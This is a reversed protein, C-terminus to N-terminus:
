YKRGRVEWTGRFTIWFSLAILRVDLWFSQRRIYLRDYRFKQRRPIDRAAHIQAVGTLGPPVRCRAAFGPVDELAEERGDGSVEIEGPRLARPGVFSMDGRFISLLQPLEDMATARLWRGTRTIRPDGASAQLAGVRAEANPIMSRFKLVRFVRGGQGVREQSFFVPGGDELKVAAAILAWAPMSCVLGAGSLVIDLLRKAILPPPEIARAVQVSETTIV